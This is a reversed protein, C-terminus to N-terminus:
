LARNSGRGAYHGHKHRGGVGDSTNRHGSIDNRQWRPPCDRSSRGARTGFLDERVQERCKPTRRVCVLGVVLDDPRCLAGVAAVIEFENNEDELSDVENVETGVNPADLERDLEQPATGIRMVRVAEKMVRYSAMHTLMVARNAPNCFDGWCRQDKVPGSSFSRENILQGNRDFTRVKVGVEVKPTVTLVKNGTYAVSFSTVEPQIILEYASPKEITTSASVGGSYSDELVEFATEHLIEGLPM